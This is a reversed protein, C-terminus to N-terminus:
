TGLISIRAFRHLFERRHTIVLLAIQRQTALQLFLELLSEEAARDLHAAPEDLIVVPSERLLIRACALRQRQGGSLHTGQLGVWSQLPESPNQACAWEWLNVQELVRQLQEPTADACALCLNEALSGTFIQPIQELVAIRQRVQDGPLASQNQGELQIQGSTPTLFQSLIQVITSKGSGSDGLLAVTDGLRLEMSFNQFVTGGDPWTFSINQISLLTPSADTTSPAPNALSFPQNPVFNPHPADSHTHITPTYEGLRPNNPQKHMRRAPTQQTAFEVNVCWTLERGWYVNCNTNEHQNPLNLFSKNVDIPTLAPNPRNAISLLRHGAASSSQLAHALAPFALVSEFAAWIGLIFTVWTIPNLRGQVVEHAGLWVMTSVACMALLPIVAEGISVILNSTRIAHNYASEIHLAEQHWLLTTNAIFLEQEGQELELTIAQLDNALTQIRLSQRRLAPTLALSFLIATGQFIAFLAFYRPSHIGLLVAMLLLTWLAVLPPAVVRAYLFELSDVDRALAQFLEGNRIDRIGVPVLPELKYYFWIRFRELLHLATDHAVMRDLWRFAGRAIGFFRVGVIAVALVAISPKLAAYTLIYGSCMMLGVSSAVTLFAWFSALLMRRWEPLAMMWIRKM